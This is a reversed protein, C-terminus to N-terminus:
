HGGVGDRVTRVAEAATLRARLESVDKRLRAAEAGSGGPKGNSSSSGSAHKPLQAPHDLPVEEFGDGEDWGGM